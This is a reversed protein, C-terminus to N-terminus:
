GEEFRRLTSMSLGVVTVVFRYIGDDDNDPHQTTRLHILRSLADANVNDKGRRYVVNVNPYQSVFQSARILRLNQRVASSSRLTTMDMIDEASKHDTYIKVPAAGEILHRVKQMTWIIGAIELETPWYNREHKNVMRSLYTIPKELKRDYRGNLVDEMNLNSASM